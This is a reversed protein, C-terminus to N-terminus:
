CIMIIGFWCKLGGGGGGGRGWVCVLVCVSGTTAGGLWVTQEVSFVFM